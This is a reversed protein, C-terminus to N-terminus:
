AAPAEPVPSVNEPVVSPQLAQQVTQAARDVAIHQSRSLPAVGAAEYLLKFAADVEPTM